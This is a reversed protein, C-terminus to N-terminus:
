GYRPDAVGAAFAARSAESSVIRWDAQKRAEFWIFGIIEPRKSLSHFFDSIWEAKSGGKEAAGVEALLIPKDTFLRIEQITPGFLEEFMVWGGWPLATGANYGDIGIWNVYADGPYLQELPTSGPFTVNPSWVWIVNTAGARQFISWVHRWAAVYEGPGNGNVGESWPYWSGNMEHAFRIAVPHGWKRLSVAWKHLYRDFSGRVIRSLSYEAWGRGGDGDATAAEDDWPEWTIMPLMGRRSIGSLLATDFEQRGWAEHFMLLSPKKAAAKQFADLEALNHPGSPTAVGFIARGDVVGPVALERRAFEVAIGPPATAADSCRSVIAAGTIAVAASVISRLGSSRGFTGHRDSHGDATRMWGSAPESSYDAKSLKVAQPLQKGEGSGTTPAGIRLRDMWQGMEMEDLKDPKVM